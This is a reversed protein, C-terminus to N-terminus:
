VFMEPPLSEFSKVGRSITKVLVSAYVVIFFTCSVPPVPIQLRYQQQAYPQYRRHYHPTITADPGGRPILFTDSPSTVRKSDTHSNLMAFRMREVILKLFRIVGEETSMVEHFFRVGVRKIYMFLFARLRQLIVPNTNNDGIMNVIKHLGSHFIEELRELRIREQPNPLIRIMSSDLRTKPIRDMEELM